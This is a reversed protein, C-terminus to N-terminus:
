RTTSFSQRFVRAGTADAVPRLLVLRPAGAQTLYLNGTGRDVILSLPDDLDALGPIGNIIQKVNGEADLTLALIDQSGGGRPLLLAGELAGAFAGSAYEAAGGPRQGTGLVFAPERWAPEPATGEPYEVVELPDAEGTPNGGNLVYESRSPNPHGHYAGPQIALLLDPQPSVEQVALGSGRPGAPTPGGESAGTVTALLRGQGTWLLSTAAGVGAAYLTLPAGAAAPDYGGGRKDPRVDLTSTLLQPDLRLIAASLRTEARHDWGKDPAGAPTMSGQAIYVAGDPGIALAGTVHDRSSRPLGVVMDSYLSLDAGSLRAVVGSGDPPDRGPPATHSVWLVPESATSVSDFGLGTIMRRGHSRTVQDIVASENLVGGSLIDFRIIQGDRTGAYLRGDPGMALVTYGRPSVDLGVREFAAPFDDLVEGATTSFELSYPPISRGTDDRLLATTELTYVSAVDLPAVPTITLERRALSLTRDADVVAGDAATLVVSEATVTRADIGRGPRPTRLRLVIRAMPLVDSQHPAPTSGVFQVGGGGRPPPSKQLGGGALLIGLGLLPVLAALVYLVSASAAAARTSTLITSSRSVTIPSAL